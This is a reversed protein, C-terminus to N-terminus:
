NERMVTKATGVYCALATLYFAAGIILVVTFGFQMAFLVTLVSAMQKTISGITSVTTPSWKLNRERNAFGFGDAIVTHDGEVILVVGSFGVKELRSLYARTGEAFADDVADAPTPIAALLMIMLLWKRTDM